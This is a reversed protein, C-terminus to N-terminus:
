DEGLLAIVTDLDESRTALLLWITAGDQKLFIARENSEWRLTRDGGRESDLGMAVRYAMVFERAEEVSDWVTRWIFLDRGDDRNELFTYRDGDWGAAAITALDPAVHAILLERTFFEGMVDNDLEQWDTDLESLAAPLTLEQPDDRENLYKEPHMVQETSSPLNKYVPEIAPWYGGPAVAKVFELGADYPFARIRTLIRPAEEAEEAEAQVEVEVEFMTIQELATLNQRFYDLTVQTAEGEILSRFAM